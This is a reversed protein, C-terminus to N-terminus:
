YGREAFPGSNFQFTKMGTYSRDPGTGYNLSVAPIVHAEPFQEILLKEAEGLLRLGELLDLGNAVLKGCKWHITPVMVHLGKMPLAERIHRLLVRSDEGHQGVPSNPPLLGAGGNLNFAHVCAEGGLPTLLGEIYSAWQRRQDGDACQILVIGREIKTMTQSLSTLVGQSILGTALVCEEDTLVLNM